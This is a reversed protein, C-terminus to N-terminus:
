KGVPNRLRSKMQDQAVPLFSLGPMRAHLAPPARDEVVIGADEHGLIASFLGEPDAGSLTFEDTHCIVTASIEGMVEGAGRGTL